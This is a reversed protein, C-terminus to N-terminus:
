ESKLETLIEQKVKDVLQKIKDEIDVVEKKVLQLLKPHHPQKALQDLFTQHKEKPLHTLVLDIIHVDLTQHVVHLLKSKEEPPLGYTDIKLYIDQIEVLHDYFMSKKM